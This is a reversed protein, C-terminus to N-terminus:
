LARKVRDASRPVTVEALLWLLRATVVVSLLPLLLEAVALRV